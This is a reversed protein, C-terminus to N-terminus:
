LEREECPQRRVYWRDTRAQSSCSVSPGPEYRGPSTSVGSGAAPSTRTARRADASFWRSRQTDRPCGAGGNNGCTLPASPAPTTSASPGPTSSTAIPSSTTISGDVEHPRQGAHTRPSTGNQRSKRMTPSCRQPVCASATTTGARFTREFGGDSEHSCAAALPSTTTTRAACAAARAIRAPRRRIPRRRRRRCSSRRTGARSRGPLRRTDPRRRALGGLEGPGDVVARGAAEVRVAGEVLVDALGGVATADVDDDVVDARGREIPGEPREGASAPEHRVAGGGAARGLQVQRRQEPSLELDDARRHVVMPLEGVRHLQDPAARDLHRDVRREPEVIERGRERAEVRALLEALDHQARQDGPVSGRTGRTADTM